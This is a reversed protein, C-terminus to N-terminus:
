EEVKIGIRNLNKYVEQEEEKKFDSNGNVEILPADGDGREGNVFDDVSTKVIMNDLAKQKAINLKERQDKFKSQIMKRQKENVIEIKGSQILSPLMPYRQLIDGEYPVFFSPGDLILSDGQKLGPIGVRGPMTSHLYQRGTDIAEQPVEQGSIEAVLDIVTKGLCLEVDTVYYVEFGDIAAILSDLDGLAIISSSRGDFVVIQQQPMDLYVIKM